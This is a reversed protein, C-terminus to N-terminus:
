DARALSMLVGVVGSLAMRRRGDRESARDIITQAALALPADGAERATRGLEALRDFAGRLRQGEEAAMAPRYRQVENWLSSVEALMSM